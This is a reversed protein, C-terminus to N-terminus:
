AKRQLGGGIRFWYERTERKAEMKLVPTLKRDHDKVLTKSRLPPKKPLTIIVPKIVASRIVAAEIKRKIRSNM